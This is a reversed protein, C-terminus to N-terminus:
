KIIKQKENTSNKNRMSHRIKNKYKKDDKFNLIYSKM